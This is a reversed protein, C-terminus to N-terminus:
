DGGLDGMAKPEFIETGVVDVPGITTTALGGGHGM